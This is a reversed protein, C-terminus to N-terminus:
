IEVRERCSARGIETVKGYITITQSQVTYQPSSGSWNAFTAVEEGSDRQGNNNLDIWVNSQDVSAANISLRILSGPARTTTFTIREQGYLLTAFSLFIIFVILKKM